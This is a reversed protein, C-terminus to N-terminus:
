RELEKQKEIFAKKIGQPILKKNYFVRFSVIRRKKDYEIVSSKVVGNIGSLTERLEDFEANSSVSHFRLIASRYSKLAKSFVNDVYSAIGLRVAKELQKEAQKKTSCAQGSEATSNWTSVVGSKITMDAKLRCRPAPTVVRVRARLSVVIDGDDSVSSVNSGSIMKKLNDASRDDSKVCVTVPVTKDRFIGVKGGYPVEEKVRGPMDEPLPNPTVHTTCGTVLVIGGLFGAAYYFIKRRM